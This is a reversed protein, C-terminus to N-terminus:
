PNLYNGMVFRISLFVKQIRNWMNRTGIPMQAQVEQSGPEPVSLGSIYNCPTLRRQKILRREEDIVVQPPKFNEFAEPTFERM